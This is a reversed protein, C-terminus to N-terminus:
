KRGQKIRQMYRFLNEVKPFAAEFEAGAEPDGIHKDDALEDCQKGFEKITLKLELLEAERERQKASARQERSVGGQGKLRGHKKKLEGEDDEEAQKYEWFLQQQSKGDILSCIKERLPKIDTPIKKDPLLLFKGNHCIGGSPSNSVHKLYASITKFGVHELVGQTIRMANHLAHSAKPRGTKSDERCLTPANAALWPGWEGHKLQTEKIEWAFLGLAVVRRMGTQADAFLKTLRKAIAADGGNKLSPTKVVSLETPKSESM